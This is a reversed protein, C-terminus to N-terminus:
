PDIRAVTIRRTLSGHVRLFYSEITTLKELPLLIEEFPQNSPIGFCIHIRREALGVLNKLFSGLLTNLKEGSLSTTRGYPPDTVIASFSGARLPLIRADANVIGDFGHVSHRLNRVAGKCIWKRIEFGITRYTLSAAESLISGTGSFPDIIVGGPGVRALNVMARAIKSPLASSLLFPRQRNAIGSQPKARIKQAILVGFFFQETTSTVIFKVNPRDLDVTLGRSRRLVLDGLTKEAESSHTGGDSLRVARVAFSAKGRIFESFDIASVEELLGRFGNGSQALLMCAANTFASRQVINAAMDTPAEMLLLGPLSRTTPPSSNLYEAIAVAEGSALSPHEGSLLLFIPIKASSTM